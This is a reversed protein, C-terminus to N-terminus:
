SSMARTAYRSVIAELYVPHKHLDDKPKEDFVADRKVMVKGGDAADEASSSPLM